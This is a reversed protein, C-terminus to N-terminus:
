IGDLCIVLLIHELAVTQCAVAMTLVNAWPKTGKADYGAGGSYPTPSTMSNLVFSMMLTLRQDVLKFVSTTAQFISIGCDASEV